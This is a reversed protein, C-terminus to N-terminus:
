YRKEPNAGASLSFCTFATPSKSAVRWCPSTVPLEFLCLRRTLRPWPAPGRVYHTRTQPERGLGHGRVEAINREPYPAGKEPWVKASRRRRFSRTSPEPLPSDIETRFRKCGACSTPGEVSLVGSGLSARMDSCIASKPPMGLVHDLIVRAYPARVGGARTPYARCSTPHLRETRGHPPRSLQSTGGAGEVDGYSTSKSSVM